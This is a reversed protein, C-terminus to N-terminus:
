LLQALSEIENLKGAKYDRKAANFIKFAEEETLTKRNSIKRGTLSEKPIKVVIYDETTSILIGSM